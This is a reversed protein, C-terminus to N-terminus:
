FRKHRRAHSMRRTEEIEVIESVVLEQFDCNPGYFGYKCHCEQYNTNLIKGFDVCMGGNLCIMSSAGSDCELESLSSPFATKANTSQLLLVTLFTLLTQFLQM